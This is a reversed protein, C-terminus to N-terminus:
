TKERSKCTDENPRSVIDYVTSYTVRNNAQDELSPWQDYPQEKSVKKYFIVPKNAPFGKMGQTQEDFHDREGESKHKKTPLNDFDDSNRKNGIEVGKGIIGECPLHTPWFRDGFQRLQLPQNPQSGEASAEGHQPRLIIVSQNIVNSIVSTVQDDFYHNVRSDEPFTCRWIIEYALDHSCNNVAHHMTIFRLCNLQENGNSIANNVVTFLDSSGNLNVERDTEHSLKNLHSRIYLLACVAHPTKFDKAINLLSNEDFKQKKVEALFLRCYEDFSKVINSEDYVEM